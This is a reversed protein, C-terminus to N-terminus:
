PGEGELLLAQLFNFEVWRSSQGNGKKDAIPLWVRLRNKITELRTQSKPEAVIRRCEEPVDETAKWSVKMYVRLPAFVQSPPCVLTLAPQLEAPNWAVVACKIVHSKASGNRRTLERNSVPNATPSQLRESPLSLVPRPSGRPQGPVIPLIQQAILVSAGFGVALAGWALSKSWKVRASPVM